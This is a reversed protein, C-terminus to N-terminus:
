FTVQKKHEPCQLFYGTDVDGWLYPINDDSAFEFILRDMSLDCIPCNPYQPDQAWQPYGGLKDKDPSVKTEICQWNVVTRAPFQGNSNRVLSDESWNDQFYPLEYEASRIEIQRFDREGKLYRNLVEELTIM